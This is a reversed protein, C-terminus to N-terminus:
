RSFTDERETYPINTPYNSYQLVLRKDSLEKITVTGNFFTLTNGQRTYADDIRLSANTATDYYLMSDKTVVMYLYSMPTVYRVTPQGGFATYYQTAYNEGNWRGEFAPVPVPVADNKCAAVLLAVGLCWLPRRLPFPRLPFYLM